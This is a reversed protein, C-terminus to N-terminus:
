ASPATWFNFTQAVVPNCETLGLFEAGMELTACLGSPVSKISCGSAFEGGSPTSSAGSICQQCDIDWTQTTLTDIKELTLEGDVVDVVLENNSIAKIIYTANASGTQEVHWDAVANPPFPEATKKLVTGAVVPSVAWKVNGAAVLISVGAGEFNPSCTSQRTTPTASAAALICAFTISALSFM